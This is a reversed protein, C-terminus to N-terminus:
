TEESETAAAQLADLDAQRYFFRHVLIQDRTSVAVADDFQPRHIRRRLERQVQHQMEVFERPHAEVIKLNTALGRNSVDYKMTVTGQLFPIEHGTPAEKSPPSVYEPIPTNRLVVYQELNDRRFALKDVTLHDDEVRTDIRFDSVLFHGYSMVKSYLNLNFFNDPLMGTPQSESDGPQIKIYELDAVIPNQPSDWLPLAFNGKLLSSEITGTFGDVARTMVFNTDTIERGYFITTYIDLNVTDILSLVDGPNTNYIENRARYYDIWEDLQLHPLSGYIKIGPSSLPRPATSFGLGLMSLRYDKGTNRKLQGRAKVDSGYDV